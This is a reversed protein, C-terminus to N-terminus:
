VTSLLRQRRDKLALMDSSTRHRLFPQISRRHLLVPSLSLISSLNTGHGQHQHQTATVEKFAGHNLMTQCSRPCSPLTAAHTHSHQHMVQQM